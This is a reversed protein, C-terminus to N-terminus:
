DDSERKGGGYMGGEGGEIERGFWGDEEEREEREEGRTSLMPHTPATEEKVAEGTNEREEGSFSLKTATATQSM